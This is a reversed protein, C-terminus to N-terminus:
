KIRQKLLYILGEHKDAINGLMQELGRSLLGKQELSDMCVELCDLFFKEAELSIVACDDSFAYEKILKNFKYAGSLIKTMDVMEAGGQDDLGLIREAIGDFDEEVSTYLREFLLHDSFFITGKTKWHHSHHLLSLGHISSLIIGLESYKSSQFLDRLNNFLRDTQINNTIELM